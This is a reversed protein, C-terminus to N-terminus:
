TAGHHLVSAERTLSQTGKEAGVHHSMITMLEPGLLDSARKLSRCTSSHIGPQGPMQPLGGKEAEQTSSNYTHVRM